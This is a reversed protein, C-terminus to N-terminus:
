WCFPLCPPLPEGGQSVQIQIAFNQFREFNAFRLVQSYTGPTLIVGKGEGGDKNLLQGNHTAFM